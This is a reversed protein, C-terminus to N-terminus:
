TMQIWFFNFHPQGLLSCLVNSRITAFFPLLFHVSYSMLSLHGTIFFFVLYLHSFLAELPFCFYRVLLGHSFTGDSLLVCLPVAFWRLLSGERGRGGQILSEDFDLAHSTPM